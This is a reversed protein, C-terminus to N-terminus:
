VSYVTFQVQETRHDTNLPAIFTLMCQLCQAMHWVGCSHKGKNKKKKKKKKKKPQEQAGDANTIVDDEENNELIEESKVSEGNEAM